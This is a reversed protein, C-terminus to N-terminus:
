DDAGAAASQGDPDPSVGSAKMREMLSTLSSTPRKTTKPKDGKKKINSRAGRRPFSGRIWNNM